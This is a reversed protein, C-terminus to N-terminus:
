PQYVSTYWSAYCTATSEAKAKVIDKQLEANHITSATITLVETSVETTEGKTNGAVAPRKATCNYMVHRIANEDTTFEFLLAFERPSAGGEEVLVGDIAEIEGLCDKRFSDPIMALTLDGSYGAAGPATYYAVDDAFFKTNEGTSELSISVAGPLRVPTGYTATGDAASITAPAYYASKLGYKVKAM